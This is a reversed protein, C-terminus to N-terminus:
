YKNIKLYLMLVKSISKESRNNYEKVFCFYSLYIFSIDFFKM